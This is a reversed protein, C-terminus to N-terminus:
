VTDCLLVQLDYPPFNRTRESLGLEMVIYVSLMPLFDSSNWRGM